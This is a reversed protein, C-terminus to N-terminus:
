RANGRATQRSDDRIQHYSNLLSATSASTCIRTYVSSLLIIKFVTQVSCWNTRLRKYDYVQPTYTCRCKAQVIGAGCTTHLCPEGCTCTITGSTHLYPLNATVPPLFIRRESQKKARGNSNERGGTVTLLAGGNVKTYITTYIFVSTAQVSTDGNLNWVYMNIILAM